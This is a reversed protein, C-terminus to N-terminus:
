FRPGLEAVASWDYMAPKTSPPPFLPLPLYGLPSGPIGAAKWCCCGGGGGGPAPPAAICTPGLRCSFTDLSVRPLDISLLDAEVTNVDPCGGGGGGGGPVAGILLTISLLPSAMFLRGAGTGLAAEAEFIFTAGVFALNPGARAFDTFGALDLLLSM